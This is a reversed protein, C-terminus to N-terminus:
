NMPIALTRSPSDRDLEVIDDDLESEEHRTACTVVPIRSVDGDIQLMSLLQCAAVDDIESSVIVLDPTLQKIRSYGRAISEVFVVDFDNTDVLLADLLEARHPHGSVVVVSRLSGSM